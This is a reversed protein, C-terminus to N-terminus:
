RWHPHMSGISSLLINLTYSRGVIAIKIEASEYTDDEAGYIRVPQRTWGDKIMLTLWPGPRYSYGLIVDFVWPGAEHAAIKDPSSLRRCKEALL